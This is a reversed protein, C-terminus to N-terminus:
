FWSVVKDYHCCLEVFESYSVLYVNNGTRTQLLASFNEGTAPPECILRDNILQEPLKNVLGRAHLDEKLAFIPTENKIHGQVVSSDLLQYVGDELYIIADGCSLFIKELKSKHLSHLTTQQAAM